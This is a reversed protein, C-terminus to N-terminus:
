CCRCHTSCGHAHLVAACNILFRVWPAFTFETDHAAVFAPIGFCHDGHHHTIIIV